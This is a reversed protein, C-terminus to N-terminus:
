SGQSQTAAPTKVVQRVPQSNAPVEVTTQQEAQSPQPVYTVTEGNAQPVVIHRIITEAPPPPTNAEVQAALAMSGVLGVGAAVTIGTTLIRAGAAPPVKKRARAQPRDRQLRDTM